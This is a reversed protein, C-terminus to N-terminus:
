RRDDYGDQKEVHIWKGPKLAIIRNDYMAACKVEPLYFKGAYTASLLIRFTKAKGAALDFYTYVRDDRIDQYDPVSLDYAGSTGEFRTNRIEWGSPFIQSLAMNQYDGRYGPNQLTVEAIFDTGQKLDSPEITKGNMTTYEVKMKLQNQVAAEQGIAPTGGIIVHAYLVGDADNRIRFKPKDGKLALSLRSEPLRTKETLPANNEIQYQYNIETVGQHQGFFGTLSILSFATEQTSMWDGSNLAGSIKKALVYGKESAGLDTLTQLIMAEDRTASGFTFAMSRYDPVETDAKDILKHAVDPRGAVAYADALLWRAQLSLRQLGNMRNMASWDPHRALALTYLRYAQILEDQHRSQPKWSNAHQTQYSAWKDMMADMVQYGKKRAELLFQGAYSTTWDDPYNNGPWYTFGGSSHQFGALAQIAATINASTSKKQAETLPTLQALYLQPFAASVTQELCGHPYNLLYDLRKGLNLPPVASVELQTSNTGKIGFFEIDPKWTEGPRLIKTLVKTQPSNPNRVSLDIDNSSQYGNGSAVIHVKGVGTKENVRLRFTVLSNGPQDLHIEQVAPGVISFHNDTTVKISVQHIGKEMAFINVPVSIEEGPGAVRPLTSLIMLPQKVAVSKEANGYAGEYGAVVMARVEGVYNPMRFSHTASKGKELFYPGFFKVVPKFRLNQAPPSTERAADGDGGISLLRSLRAGYAGIVQDFVDWTKVGLAEKAYFVNWPVPTKYHTLDLLGEDVVAITYAMPKGAKESVRISVKQNPRLKDPMKIEPQLMTGPDEVKLGIIGYQRIPLDNVTQGHPQIESINLYINPAMDATVPITFENSGKREELWFNKLVRAGNEVSIFIHGTGSGPIYLKMEEGVKYIQKDTTFSLRTAGGPMGSLVSGSNSPWEFYVFAGTTYGSEPDNVQIYYRGWEPSPIRLSFSGKGNETAIEKKLVQKYYKSDVYDADESNDSQEWWWRWQTKYVMVQLKSMNTPKGDAYVTAVSITYDKDLDLMNGYSSGEPIRIGIYKRYPYFPVSQYNVSFEGGPEYVKGTFFANLSAPAREELKIAPQIAAGGTADLRGQFITREVTEFHYNPDDFQYQKYNEFTTRAQTLIMDYQASLNGASAGSLWRVHLDGSQKDPTIKNDPFSLDIKLRNPKVTEIKLTKTFSAGGVKVEATWNGTPADAATATAFSYLGKVSSSKVIHQVVMGRPNTLEFVVPHAAPLHHNKDELMFSLYISDGPRWVGREGYLYGKIGQQVKDGSVDFQSVSLSSGENLKLYTWQKKYTGEALFVKQNLNFHAMGQDDTSSIAIQQLQYNYLRLTVGTLPKATILDTAILLLNNDTGKKAILGIDSALINKKIVNKGGSYYASNCPDNRKEWDYDEEYYQGFADYFYSDDPDDFSNVDAQERPDGVRKLGNYGKWSCLSTIDSKNFGIAIQYIAGPEAQILKSLELTFRNWRNLDSVGMNDLHIVKQLVPRGVRSLQESGELNNVQLFQGIRDQQIKIIRIQVTKLGIAEIPLVMGNTSPLINGQGVFKVAPSLEEFTLQLSTDRSLTQQIRNHIGQFISVDKSGSLFQSPFVTLENGKVSYTIDQSTDIKVLGAFSQREDLPDSFLFHVSTGPDQVVQGSLLRFDGKAPILIDQDGSQKVEIAHGSWHLHLQQPKDARRINKIIFTHATKSDHLWTIAMSKGEYKAQVMKEISKNDSADATLIKGKFTYQQLGDNGTTFLGTAQMEFAQPIVEFGFIFDNFSKDEVEMIRNLKLDATYIAGPKMSESPRFEITRTDKWYAKGSIHPTFFLLDDKLPDGPTVKGRPSRSLQIVIPQNRSIMGGTYGSVYAAFAPDPVVIKEPQQRKVFYIIGIALLAILSLATLWYARKTWARTQKSKM